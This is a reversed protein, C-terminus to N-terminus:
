EFRIDALVFEVNSNGNYTNIQPQYAVNFFECELLKKEWKGFRFGICRISATNDTIVLQLHDGRIGVRRPPSALRVGKTVFVPRPNGQGFPALLQLESVTDKRFESLPAVADIYLKAVVDDERLSKKAHAEFLNAFQEIKAAEITIGAAMKHGGFKILHQSCAGIASLLCFGPISRGSGQATADEVCLMITPRYFKDVIRSAVIGLVGGHWNESALVISKQDPHNLGRRAVMECAQKFIKRECQQRQKNQEKLYEAIKMSRLESDSTLLEVALRAHGMRGAANLMPALRFGIDFSDLGQGTLGATEILAQIGPLKCEPLAKLGYSTLVRNEGRLQVIDAVTGMATLSTANLMFERLRPGLKTGVNFENAIAWALKFAVMAGSSDQNPYADELAPHVIAVAKPLETGPQHHDTIILGIGLQEALMASDFDTVGCDVTILLKSGAKALQQVAEVNLGYGEDIRHPIYYDVQAGLLTLMQWLIAVGTIGDVDYDGYVSIKEENRIAQKLRRVASEIGPMQGPEILETLKPRLFISGAHADTIGRNILVQALLPSVKLSKALQASRDDPPQIAWQKTPTGLRMKNPERLARLPASKTAKQMRASLQM